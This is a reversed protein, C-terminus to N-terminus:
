NNPVNTANLGGGGEGSVFSRGHESVCAPPLFHGELGQTARPLQLCAGAASPLTRGQPERPLQSAQGAAVDEASLVQIVSM